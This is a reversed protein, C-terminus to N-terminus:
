ASTLLSSQTTEQGGYAQMLRMIQFMIESDSSSASATASTATASTSADDSGDSTSDKYAMAEQFSVKGDSDTDAASFNDVISSILSSRESDSDGIEELQAELEDQTFGTDNEPPPPPPMGGMGQPGAGGMGQMRMQDFQSDLEEKLKSLTSTFENETVKGDSDTDLASFLNDVDSSGDDIASFASALDSKEIYGQSKSDLQQFLRSAMQTSNGISSLM